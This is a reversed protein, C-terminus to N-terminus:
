GDPYISPSYERGVQKNKYSINKSLFKLIREVEVFVHVAQVFVKKKWKRYICSVRLVNIKTSTRGTSTVGHSFELVACDSIKFKKLLFIKMPFLKFNLDSTSKSIEKSVMRIPPITGWPLQVAKIWWFKTMNNDAAPGSLYRVSFTEFILTLIHDATEVSWRSIM